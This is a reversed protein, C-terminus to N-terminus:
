AGFEAGYNIGFGGSATATITIDDYEVVQAAGPPLTPTPSTAQM